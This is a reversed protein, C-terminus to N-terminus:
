RYLEKIAGWSKAATATVVNINPHYDELEGFTRNAYPTPAQGGYLPDNYAVIARCWTDGATVWAPVVFSRSVVLTGPLPIDVDVRADIMLEDDAWVLDRNWDVWYRVFEGGTYLTPDANSVPITFAITVVASPFWPSPITGQKDTAEGNFTLGDTRNYFGEDDPVVGGPNTGMFEFDQSSVFTHASDYLLPANGYDSMSGPAPRETAIAAAPAVLVILVSVSTVWKRM